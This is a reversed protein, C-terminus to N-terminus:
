LACISSPLLATALCCLSVFVRGREHPIYSVFCVLWPCLLFLRGSAARRLVCPRDGCPLHPRRHLPRPGLHAGTKVLGPVASRSLRQVTLKFSTGWPRNIFPSFYIFLLTQLSDSIFCFPFFFSGLPRSEPTVARLRPGSSHVRPRRAPCSTSRSRPRHFGRALRVGRLASPRGGAM